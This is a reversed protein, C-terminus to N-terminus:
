FVKDLGLRTQVYTGMDNNDNFNHYLLLTFFHLIQRQFAFHRLTFWRKWFREQCLSAFIDHGCKCLTILHKTVHGSGLQSSKGHTLHLVMGPPEEHLEMPSALYWTRLADHWTPEDTFSFTHGFKEVPVTFSMNTHRLSVLWCPTRFIECQGQVLLPRKFTM